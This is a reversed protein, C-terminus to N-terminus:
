RYLLPSKIGQDLTRIGGPEGLAQQEIACGVHCCGPDRDRAYLGFLALRPETAVILDPRRLGSSRRAPPASRREVNAAATKIQAIAAQVRVLKAGLTPQDGLGAITTQLGQVATLLGPM